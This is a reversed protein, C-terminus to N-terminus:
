RDDEPRKWLQDPHITGAFQNSYIVRQKTNGRGDPGDDIELRIRLQTSLPGRYRPATFEWYAGTPLKLTHFSDGCSTRPMYELARWTGDKALAEHVMWLRSDQAPVDVPQASNNIVLVRFGDLNPYFVRRLEPQAIVQFGPKIPTGSLEALRKPFNEATGNGDGEDILAGARFWIRRQETADLSGLTTPPLAVPPVITVPSSRPVASTAIQSPAAAVLTLGLLWRM